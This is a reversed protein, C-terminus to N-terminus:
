LLRKPKIAQFSKLYFPDFYALDEIEGQAFKQAGFNKFHAASPFPFDLFHLNESRLTARCKEAGDGFYFLPREVESFSTEDIIEASVDTWSGNQLDYAATYVEMRRADIMPQLIAETDFDFQEMAGAVLLEPGKASIMPIKLAYALAKASAVGIRLGTYSGPGSGVAIGELDKSDLGAYKLAEEIFLHLKESHIYQDSHAEKIALVKQDQILAVSCNRTSTELALYLM